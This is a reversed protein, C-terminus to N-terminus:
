LWTQEKKRRKISRRNIRTTNKKKNRDTVKILNDTDQNIFLGIVAYENYRKHLIGQVEVKESLNTTFINDDDIPLEKYFIHVPVM